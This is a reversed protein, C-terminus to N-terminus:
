TGPRGTQPLTRQHYRLTEGPAMHPSPALCLFAITSGSARVPTGPPTSDTAPLAQLGGARRASPGERGPAGGGVGSSESRLVERYGWGPGLERGTERDTRVAPLEVRM